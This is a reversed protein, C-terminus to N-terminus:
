RTTAPCTSRATTPLWADALGSLRDLADRDDTVIPEGALNGSTMVLVAPGPPRRAARAAPPPAPRLRADRRPGRQRARRQPGAPPTRAAPLWSSRAARPRDAPAAEAATSHRGPAGATPSTPAGHVAFPKDGRQKRKRLMAVAARQRRRLRPPLRRHGEGRRDRGRALLRRAESLAEEGYRGATGPVSWPSCRVATPAACPRRTSAATPRTPTSAPAPPACRSAPWRPRRGTTPCTPPSRTAAARLQHLHHVPAPVPPGRPGPARRPLRRLDHRGPQRLDAGSYQESARITFGTGGVPALDEVAVETLRALPPPETQLRGVFADVLHAPGEVEIVVGAADNWVAGGLHLSSALAYVHPRFGVGQVVGRVVLRRRVRTGTSVAEDGRNTNGLPATTRLRRSRPPGRSCWVGPAAGCRHATPDSRSSYAHEPWAPRLAVSSRCCSDQPPGAAPTGTRCWCRTTGSRPRPRGLVAPARADPVGEGGCGPRM